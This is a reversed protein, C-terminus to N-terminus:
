RCQDDLSSNGIEAIRMFWNTKHFQSSLPCVFRLLDSYYQDSPKQGIRCIGPFM